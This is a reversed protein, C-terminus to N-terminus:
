SVFSLLFTSLLIVLAEVGDFSPIEKRVGREGVAGEITSGTHALPRASVVDAELAQATTVCLVSLQSKELDSGRINAIADDVFPGLLVAVPSMLM